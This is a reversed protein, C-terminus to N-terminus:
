LKELQNILLDINNKIKVIKMLIFLSVVIGVVGVFAYILAIKLTIVQYFVAFSATLVTMFFMFLNRYDDRLINIKEKISDVKSM